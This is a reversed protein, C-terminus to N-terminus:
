NRQEDRAERERKAQNDRLRDILKVAENMVVSILAYAFVMITIINVTTDSM